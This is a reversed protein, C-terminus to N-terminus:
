RHGYERTRRGIITLARTSRFLKIEHRRRLSSNTTLKCSNNSMRQYMSRPAEPPAAEPSRSGSEEGRSTSIERSLRNKAGLALRLNLTDQWELSPQTFVAIFLNHTLFLSSSYGFTGDDLKSMLSRDSKEVRTDRPSSATSAHPQEERADAIASEPPGIERAARGGLGFEGERVRQIISNALVDTSLDSILSTARSDNSCIIAGLLGEANSLRQELANM